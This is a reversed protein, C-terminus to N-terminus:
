VLLPEVRGAFKISGPFSTICPECTHKRQNEREKKMGRERETGSESDRERERKGRERQRLGRVCEKPGDVCAGEAVNVGM